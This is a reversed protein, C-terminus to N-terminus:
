ETPPDSGAGLHRTIPYGHPYSRSPNCVSSQDGGIRRRDAVDRIRSKRPYGEAIRKKWAMYGIKLCTITGFPSESVKLRNGKPGVHDNVMISCFPHDHIGFLGVWMGRRHNDAAVNPVVRQSWLLKRVQNGCNMVRQTLESLGNLCLFNQNGGHRYPSGNM